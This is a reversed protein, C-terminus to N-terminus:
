TFVKKLLTGCREYGLKELRSITKEEDVETTVSCYTYRCGNEKAWQEYVAFLQGAIGHCRYAPHVFFGNEFAVRDDSFQSIHNYQALFGAVLNGEM